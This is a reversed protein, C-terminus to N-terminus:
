QSTVCAWCWCARPAADWPEARPRGSGASSIQEPKPSAALALPLWLERGAGRAPVADKLCCRQPWKRGLLSLLEMEQLNEEGPFCFSLESSSGHPAPAPEAGPRPANVWCRMRGLVPVSSQRGYIIPSCCYIWGPIITRSPRGRCLPHTSFCESVGM